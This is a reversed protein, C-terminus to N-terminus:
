AATEQPTRTDTTTPVLWRYPWTTERRAGPVSGRGCRAALALANTGMGPAVDACLAYGPPAPPTPTAGLERSTDVDDRVLRERVTSPDVGLIEGVVRLNRHQEYLEVTRDMEAASVKRGAVKAVPRLQVGAAHLRRRVTEPHLHGRRGIEVTSLQEDVYLRTIEAITM